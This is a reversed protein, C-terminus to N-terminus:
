LHTRLFPGSRPRTMLESSVFDLRVFHVMGTGSAPAGDRKLSGRFVSSMCPSQVM